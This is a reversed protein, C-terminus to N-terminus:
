HGNGFLYPTRRNKWLWELIGDINAPGSYAIMVNEAPQPLSGATVKNTNSFWYEKKGTFCYDDFARDRLANEYQLFSFRYQEPM